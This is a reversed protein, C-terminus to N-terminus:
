NYFQAGPILLLLLNNVTNNLIVVNYSILVVFCTKFNLVLYEKRIATTNKETSILKFRTPSISCFM